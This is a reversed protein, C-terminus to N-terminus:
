AQINAQFKRRRTIAGIGILGAGLLLLSAPEPASVTNGEPNVLSVELKQNKFLPDLGDSAILSGLGSDLGEPIEEFEWDNPDRYIYAKYIGEPDIIDAYLLNGTLTWAAYTVQSDSGTTVGFPSSSTANWVEVGNISIGMSQTADYDQQFLDIVTSKEEYHIDVSVEYSQGTTIVTSSDTWSTGDVRVEDLYYYGDDGDDSAWTSGCVFALAIGIAYIMKM